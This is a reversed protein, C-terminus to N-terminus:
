DIRGGTLDNLRWDFTGFEVKFRNQRLYAQESQFLHDLTLALIAREIPSRQDFVSDAKGAFAAVFDKERWSYLPTVVVTNAGEDIRFHGQRIVFGRTADALQAELRSATYAESRLRGSGLAGRGLAFIVRADKYDDLLWRELEDLSVSRGAVRHKRDFVGPIQRISNAPFAGARGAIPYNQVVSHLVIANYANILIAMQEERSLRAFAAEPVDLSAIYRALGARSAQVARYYVLGDRVNIDLLQDYARHRPDVDPPPPLQTASLSSALLLSTLVRLTM